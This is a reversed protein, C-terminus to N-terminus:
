WVDGYERIKADEYPAVRRRFLELKCCELAGIIDNYVQYSEGQEILYGGAILTFAFNLEGANRPVRPSKAIDERASQDIYPM